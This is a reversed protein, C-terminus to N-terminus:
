FLCFYNIVNREMQFAFHCLMKKIRGAKLYDHLARSGTYKGIQKSM